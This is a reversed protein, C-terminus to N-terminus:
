GRTQVNISNTTKDEVKAGMMEKANDNMFLEIALKGTDFLGSTVGGTMLSGIIAGNDLFNSAAQRRSAHAAAKASADAVGKTGKFLNGIIPISRLKSVIDDVYSLMIKLFKSSKEFSWQMVKFVYSHRLLGFIKSVVKFIGMFISLITGLIAGLVEFVDNLNFGLLNEMYYNILKIIDAIIAIVLRIPWLIGRLLTTLTSILFTLFPELVIMLDEGLNFLEKFLKDLGADFLSKKFLEWQAMMRKQAMGVTSFAKDLGPAALDRMAQSFVPLFDEAAIKGEEMAKLFEESTMGMSKAAIQMVAPMRDGLQLKLEEAMIQGKSAMQELARITGNIQEQSLGFVTAAEAVGLFQNQVDQFSFGLQQAALAYRSFGKASQAADIGLRKSQSILFQMAPAANEGLATEMMIGANEFDQGVRNINSLGSFLTYAQIMGVMSGRLQKFSMTTKKTQVDLKKMGRGAKGYFGSLAKIAAKQENFAKTQAKINARNQKIIPNLKMYMKLMREDFQASSIKGSEFAKKAANMSSHYTGTQGGKLGSQQIKTNLKETARMIKMNRRSQDNIDRQAKVKAKTAKVEKDMKSTIRPSAKIKNLSLMMKRLDGIEKKFKRLEKLSKPDFKYKIESYIGAVRTDKAM